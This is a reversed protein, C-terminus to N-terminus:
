PILVEKPMRLCARPHVAAEVVAIGKGVWVVFVLPFLVLYKPKYRIWPFLNLVAGALAFPVLLPVFVAVFLTRFWPDFSRPPLDGSLQIFYQHYGWVYHHKFVDAMEERDFHLIKPIPSFMVAKGKRRFSRILLADEGTLLRSDFVSGEKPLVAMKVSFNTTPLHYPHHVERISGYPLSHVWSMVNDLKAWFSKGAGVIGGGFCAAEKYDHHLKLHQDIFDEGPVCDSDIMLVIEISHDRCWQIATNRAAAVGQNETHHLIHLFPLTLFDQLHAEVLSASTGDNILLVETAPLKHSILEDLCRRLPGLRQFFPIIVCHSTAAYDTPM